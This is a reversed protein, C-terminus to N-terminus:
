AGDQSLRGRPWLLVVLILWVVAPLWAYFAGSATGDTLMVRNAWTNLRVAVLTVALGTGWLAWLFPRSGRGAVRHGVAWGLLGNLALFVPAAWLAHLLFTLRNPPHALPRRRDLSYSAPQAAVVDARWRRIASPTRPLYARISADAPLSADTVLRYEATPVVWAVAVFELGGAVVLVAMWGFLRRRGPGFVSVGGAFATYPLMAVVNVFLAFAIVAPETRGEGSALYATTVAVALAVAWAFM